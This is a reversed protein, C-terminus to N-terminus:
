GEGGVVGAAACEAMYINNIKQENGETIYIKEITHKAMREDGKLIYYRPTDTGVLLFFLGIALMYLM